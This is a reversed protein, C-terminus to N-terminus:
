RWTSTIFWLSFNCYKKCVVAPTITIASTYSVSCNISPSLHFDQNWITKELYIIFPDLFKMLWEFNIAFPCKKLINQLKWDFVSSNLKIKFRSSGSAFDAGPIILSDFPRCFSGVYSESKLSSPKEGGGHWFWRAFSASYSNLRSLCSLIKGCFPKRIFNCWIVNRKGVSTSMFRKLIIILLSYDSTECILLEESDKGRSSRM